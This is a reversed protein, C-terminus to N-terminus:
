ISKQGGVLYSLSTYIYHSYSCLNGAGLSVKMGLPPKSKEKHKEKSQSLEDKIADM